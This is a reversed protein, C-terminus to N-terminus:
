EKQLQRKEPTRIGITSLAVGSQAFEFLFPDGMAFPIAGFEDKESGVDTRGRAIEYSEPYSNLRSRQTSTL